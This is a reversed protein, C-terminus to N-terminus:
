CYPSSSYSYYPYSCIGRMLPEAFFLTADTWISISASSLIACLAPYHLATSIVVIKDRVTATAPYISATGYFSSTEFLTNIKGM